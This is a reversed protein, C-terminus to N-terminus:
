GMLVLNCTYRIAYGAPIVDNITIKLKSVVRDLTVARNGNSTNAM